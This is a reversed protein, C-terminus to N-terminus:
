KNILIGSIWQDLEGRNRLSLLANVVSPLRAVSEYMIKAQLKGMAHAGGIEYGIWLSNGIEPVVNLLFGDCKRIASMIYDPLGVPDGFIKDDWETIYVQVRHKDVIYQAEIVAKTDGTKHSLFVMTEAASKTNLYRQAVTREYTDQMGPRILRSFRM